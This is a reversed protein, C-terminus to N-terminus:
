TDQVGLVNEYLVEFMASETTQEPYNDKHYTTIMQRILKKPIAYETFLFDVIDKIQDAKDKQIQRLGSADIICSKIKERDAPNSPVFNTDLLKTM